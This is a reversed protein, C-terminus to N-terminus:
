IWLDKTKISTCKKQNLQKISRMLHKCNAHVSLLYKTEDKTRYKKFISM